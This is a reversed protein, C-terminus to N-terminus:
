KAARFSRKIVNRKGWLVGWYFHIILLFNLWRSVTKRCFLKRLEAPSRPLLCDDDSEASNPFLSLAIPTNPEIRIYSLKWRSLRKGLKRRAERLFKMAELTNKWGTGPVAAFFNFSARVRDDRAVLDLARYLSQPTTPKQLSKLGEQSAADPSFYFDDCGSLSALQLYERTIFRDQHYAGWRIKLNRDLIERCIAEAHDLPFNFVPDCFFIRSVGFKESLFSLENVVKQPSKQRIIGRSFQPYTCYSCNLPCGRKTEVGISAKETFPLYPSLDVLDWAPSSLDEFDPPETLGSFEINSGNRYFIGPVENVDGGKQLFASISKEAEMFFGFKLEPVRKLVTRPFLSFGSGGVVLTAKTCLEHIRQVYQQLHPFYLFPDSYKTTDINRLSFGIIEPKFSNIIETIGDFPDPSVNPDFIRVAHDKLAAALVALGLPAVPPERRGLYAQILLIHM